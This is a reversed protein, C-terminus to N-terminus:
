EKASYKGDKLEVRGKKTVHSLALGVNEGPFETEIEAVTKPPRAEELFEVISDGVTPRKWEPIAQRIKKERSRQEKATNTYEDILDQVGAM